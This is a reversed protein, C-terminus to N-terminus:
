FKGKYKYTQTLNPAALGLSNALQELRKPSTLRLWKVRDVQTLEQLRRLEREQHVYQYTDKVTTTRVWILLSVASFLLFLLLTLELKEKKTLVMNKPTSFDVLVVKEIKGKHSLRKL